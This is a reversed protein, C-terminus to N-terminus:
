TRTGLGSRVGVVVFGCVKLLVHHLVPDADGPDRTHFMHIPVERISYVGRVRLESLLDRSTKVDFIVSQICM